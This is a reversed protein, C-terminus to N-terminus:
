KTFGQLSLHVDDYTISSNQAALTLSTPQGPTSTVNGFTAAALDGGKPIMTASATGSSVKLKIGLLYISGVTAKGVNAGGVCAGTECTGAGCDGDGCCVPAGSRM